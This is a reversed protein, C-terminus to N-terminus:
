QTQLTTTFSRGGEGYEVSKLNQLEYDTLPQFQPGALDDDGVQKVYEFQGTFEGNADYVPREFVQSNPVDQLVSKVGVDYISNVGAKALAEAQTKFLEELRDPYRYSYGSTRNVAEYQDKLQRTLFDITNQAM